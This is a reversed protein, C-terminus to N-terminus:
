KEKIRSFINASVMWGSAGYGRSWLIVEPIRDKNVDKIEVKGVETSKSTFDYQLKQEYKNKDQKEFIALHYDTKPDDELIHRRTFATSDGYVLVLDQKGDLNLDGEAYGKVMARKFLTSIEVVRLYRDPLKLDRTGSTDYDNEDVEAGDIDNTYYYGAFVFATDIWKLVQVEYDEGRWDPMHKEVFAKDLPTLNHYDMKDTLLTYEKIVGPKIIVGAKYGSFAWGSLLIYSSKNQPSNEIGYSCGYIVSNLLFFLLLCQLM